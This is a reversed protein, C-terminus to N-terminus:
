SPRGGSVGQSTAGGCLGVPRPLAVAHLSPLDPLSKRSSRVGLGGDSPDAPPLLLQVGRRGWQRRSWQYVTSQISGLLNTERLHSGLRQWASSRGSVGILVL